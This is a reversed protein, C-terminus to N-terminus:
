AVLGRLQETEGRVLADLLNQGLEHEAEGLELLALALLLHARRSSPALSVARRYASLAASHKGSRHLLRGLHLHLKPLFPDPSVARELRKIAEAPEIGPAISLRFEAEALALRVAPNRDRRELEAIATSLRRRGEATAASTAHRTM